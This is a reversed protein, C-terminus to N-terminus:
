MEDDGVKEQEIVATQTYSSGRQRTSVDALANIVTSRAALMTKRVYM